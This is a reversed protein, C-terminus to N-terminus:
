KTKRKQEVKFDSFNDQPIICEYKRVRYISYKWTGLGLWFRSYSWFIHMNMYISSLLVIQSHYFERWDLFPQFYQIERLRESFKRVSKISFLSFLSRPRSIGGFTSGYIKDHVGM